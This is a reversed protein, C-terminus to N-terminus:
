PIYPCTNILFIRNWGLEAINCVCYAIIPYYYVPMIGIGEICTDEIIVYQVRTGTKSRKLSLM